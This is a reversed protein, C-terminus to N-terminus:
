MEPILEKVICEAGDSKFTQIMKKSIDQHNQGLLELLYEITILEETKYFALGQEVLYKANFFQHNKAAYPYPIFLTPIAMAYLEFLSSAGARAIAFDVDKLREIINKDYEKLKIDIGNTTYFEKVRQYDSKGAIHIIDIGMKIIQKASNMALDNIAKAGLSGGMFIIKKIDKRLRQNKFFVEDIPYNKCLSSNDFSSFFRKAFPKSLKNLMGISANQEHIYLEKQFVISAIVAPSASYGGVSFVKTVGHKKFVWYLKTASKLINFLALIKGIFNKNVVGQSQLFIRDKFKKDNLFWEKDQGRTSGIYITSVGKAHLKENIVKAIRLHGGTGGGTILITQKM